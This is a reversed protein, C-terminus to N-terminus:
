ETKRDKAEGILLNMINKGIGKRRYKERTYMNMIYAKKGTQNNYTPLLKIFCISGCGIFETGDFALYTVNESNINDIYYEHTKIFINDMNVNNDLNNASKLVELRIESIYEIDKETGKRYVYQEM